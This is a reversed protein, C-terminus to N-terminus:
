TQPEDKLPMCTVAFDVHYHEDHRVWAQQTNFVINNQLYAGEKTAMLMPQLRPDFIVRKIGIGSTKAILDLSKLHAALSEFDIQYNQSQGLDNFEFAYGFQNRWSTPLYVSQNTKNMVPVMFDVSLGNQHTKHPKFDGGNPWGTEALMFKIDPLEMNLRVFSQRIVQAVKSHVYTRNLLWGLESYVKFNEGSKPLQVADVLAGKAPTGFCTSSLPKGLVVGSCTMGALMWLSVSFRSLFKM